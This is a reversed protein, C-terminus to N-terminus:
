LPYDSSFRGLITAVAVTMTKMEDSQLYVLPTLLDNWWATANFISVTALGPLSLPVVVRLLVQLYGAGDIRVAELIENPLSHLLARLLFVNGPISTVGWIVIVSAFHNVWGLRSMLLFNPLIFTIGPVTMMGIMTMYLSNKFRFRLKAFAFAAPVSLVLSLILAGGVSVLTNGFLRLLSFRYYLAQFNDFYFTKPWAIPNRIFEISTKMSSLLMYALPYVAVVAVLTLIVVLIFRVFRNSTRNM